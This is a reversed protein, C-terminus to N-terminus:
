EQLNNTCDNQKTERCDVDEDVLLDIIDLDGNKVTWKLIGREVIDSITNNAKDNENSQIESTTNNAKDKENPQIESTTDDAKDNENSRIESTTDDAKDNPEVRSTTDDAEDYGKPFSQEIIDIIADRMRDVHKLLEQNSKRSTINLKLVYQDVSDTYPPLVFGLKLTRSIFKSM